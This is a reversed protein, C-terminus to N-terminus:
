DSYRAREKRRLWGRYLWWVFLAPPLNATAADPSVYVAALGVFILCGVLFINARRDAGKRWTVLHVLGAALGFWLIGGIFAGVLYPLTLMLRVRSELGLPPRMPM